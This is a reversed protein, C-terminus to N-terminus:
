RRRPTTADVVNGAEDRVQAEERRVTDTVQQTDQVRDKTIELEERVRARKGVEVEEGRVPVEVTGEQFTTDDPSVERDVVRRSVNVREESVPVDLTQQQESVVKDVQVKGREVERTSATLEEETLPVRITETDGAQIARDTTNEAAAGTGWTDAVARDALEQDTLSREANYSGDTTTTPIADWGQNLANDKTVNLYLGDADSTNIASAPIYYDTPFFFGKSVVVYEGEVGSVSGVKEGDAGFVDMGGTVNLTNREDIM